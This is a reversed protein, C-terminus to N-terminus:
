IRSKLLDWNTKDMYGGAGTFLRNCICYPQGNPQLHCEGGNLCELPCGTSGSGPWDPLEKAQPKVVCKDRGPPRLM